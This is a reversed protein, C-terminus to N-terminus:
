ENVPTNESAEVFVIKTGDLSWAPDRASSDDANLRTGEEEPSQSRYIDWANRDRDWLTYLMQEAYINMEAFLFWDFDNSLLHLAVVESGHVSASWQDDVSGSGKASFLIHYSDPDPGPIVGLIKSVERDQILPVVDTGSLNASFISRGRRFVVSQEHSALHAETGEIPMGGFDEPTGELNAPVIKLTSQTAQEAVFLIHDTPLWIPTRIEGAQAAALTHLPNGQTDAVVLTRFVEKTLARNGMLLPAAINEPVKQFLSLVKGIASGPSKLYDDPSELTVRIPPNRSGDDVDVTYRDVPYAPEAPIEAFEFFILRPKPSFDHAGDDQVVQEFEATPKGPAEVSWRITVSGGPQDLLIGVALKTGPAFDIESLFFGRSNRVQWEGLMVADERSRLIEAKITEINVIGVTVCAISICLFWRFIKRM